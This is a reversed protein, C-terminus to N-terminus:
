IAVELPEKNLGNARAYSLAAIIHMCPSRREQNRNYVTCPCLALGQIEPPTIECVVEYGGVNFTGYPYQYKGEFYHEVHEVEVKTSNFNIM